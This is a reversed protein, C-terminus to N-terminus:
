FRPKSNLRSRKQQHDVVTENLQARRWVTSVFQTWADGNKTESWFDSFGSSRKNGASLPTTMPDMGSKAWFETWTSVLAKAHPVVDPPPLGVVGPGCETFRSIWLSVPTDCINIGAAWNRIQALRARVGPAPPPDVSVGEEQCRKLWKSLWAVRLEEDPAPKSLPFCDLPRSLLSGQMAQTALILAEYPSGTERAQVSWRVGRKWLFDALAWQQEAMAIDLLSRGRDEFQILTEPPISKLLSSLPREHQEMSINLGVRDPNGGTYFGYGKILNGLLTEYGMVASCKMDWPLKNEFIADYLNAFAYFSGHDPPDMLVSFVSWAPDTWLGEPTPLVPLRGSGWFRVKKDNLLPRVHESLVYFTPYLFEASPRLVGDRWVMPQPSESQVIIDDPLHFGSM